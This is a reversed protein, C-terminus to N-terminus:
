GGTGVKRPPYIEQTTTEGQRPKEEAEEEKTALYRAVSMLNAGIATLEQSLWGPDYMDWAKLAGDLREICQKVVERPKFPGM